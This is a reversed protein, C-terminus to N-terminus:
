LNKLEKEKIVFKIKKMMKKNQFYTIYFIFISLFLYISSVYSIYIRYVYTIRLYNELNFEKNGVKEKDM